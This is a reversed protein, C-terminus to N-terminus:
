GQRAIEGFVAAVPQRRFEVVVARYLFIVGAALPRHHQVQRRQALELHRPRIRLGQQLDGAGPVDALQRHPLHDIGGHTVLMAAHEVVARHEAQAAVIEAPDAAILIASLPQPLQRLLPPQLGPHSGRGIVQM